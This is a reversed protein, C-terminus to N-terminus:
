PYLVRRRVSQEARGWITGGELAFYWWRHGGPRALSSLTAWGHRAVTRWRRRPQGRDRFRVYLEVHSRGYARGKRFAGGVTLPRRVHLLADPVFGTDIGLLQARWTFDVDEGCWMDPDFPGIRQCVDARIGLLGGGVMVHWDLFGTLGDHRLRVGQAWEPNLEEIGMRASVMEYTQLGDAMAQLYGPAVRDDADVFVLLAGEAAAIATNLAHSKGPRIESLVRLAPVRGVFSRATAATTDTSGNDVVIVEWAFTTSQAALAELQERLHPEGNRVPLIVTLHPANM